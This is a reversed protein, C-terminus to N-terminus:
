NGDILGPVINTRRFKGGPIEGCVKEGAPARGRSGHYYEDVGSEDVYVITSKDSESTKQCFV